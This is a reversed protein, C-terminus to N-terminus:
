RWFVRELPPYLKRMHRPSQRRSPPDRRCRSTAVMWKALGQMVLIEPVEDLVALAALVGGDLLVPEALPEVPRALMLPVPSSLENPRPVPRSTFEIM